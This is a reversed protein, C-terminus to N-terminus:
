THRRPRDVIRDRMHQFLADESWCPAPAAIYEMSPVPGASSEAAHYSQIYCLRRKSDWNGQSQTTAVLQGAFHASSSPKGKGFQASAKTTCRSQCSCLYVTGHVRLCTCVYKSQPGADYLSSALLLLLLLGGAAAPLCSREGSGARPCSAALLCAPLAGLSGPRGTGAEHKGVRGDRSPKAREEGRREGEEFRLGVKSRM